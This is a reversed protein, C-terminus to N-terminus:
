LGFRLARNAHGETRRLGSCLRTLQDDLVAGAVVRFRRIECSRALLDSTLPFDRFFGVECRPPRGMKANCWEWPPHEM